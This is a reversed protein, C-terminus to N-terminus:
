EFRCRFIASCLFSLTLRVEALIAAGKSVLIEFPVGAMHELSGGPWSAAFRSIIEDQDSDGLGPGLPLESRSADHSASVSEKEVADPRKSAKPPPSAPSATATPRPPVVGRDRKLSPATAGRAKAARELLATM